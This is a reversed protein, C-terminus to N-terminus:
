QDRIHLKVKILRDWFCKMSMSLDMLTVWKIGWNTWVRKSFNAPISPLSELWRGKCLAQRQSLLHELIHASHIFTTNKYHKMNTMRLKKGIDGMWIPGNMIQLSTQYETGASSASGQPFASCQLTVFYINNISSWLTLLDVLAMDMQSGYAHSHM